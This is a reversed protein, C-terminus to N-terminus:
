ESELNIKFGLHLAFLSLIDINYNWSGAEIKSITIPKVGMLVSLEDQTFGKKERIERIQSGFSERQTLSYVKDINGKM